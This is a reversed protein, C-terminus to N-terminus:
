QYSFSYLDANNLAFQFSSLQTPTSGIFYVKQVSTAVESHANLARVLEEAIEWSPIRALELGMTFFGVNTASNKEAIKFIDRAAQFMTNRRNSDEMTISPWYEINEASSSEHVMVSPVGRAGDGIPIAKSKVVLSIKSDNYPGLEISVTIKGIKWEKL